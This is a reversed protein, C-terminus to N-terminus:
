MNIIMEFKNKLHEPIMEKCIHEFNYNLQTDTSEYAEFNIIPKVELTIGYKSLEQIKKIYKPQSIYEKNLYIELYDKQSINKLKNDDWLEENYIRYFKISSNNAYFELSKIDDDQMVYFGREQNSDIFTLPYCSGLTYLNNKISPTHIHGSFIISNKLLTKKALDMEDLSTHTYIFKPKFKLIENITDEDQFEYWPLFIHDEIRLWSKYLVLINEFRGILIDLICIDSKEELPSYYDHNGALVIMESKSNQQILTNSLDEFMKVVMWTICVNISSRSDFVDGLHVLRIPEDQSKIYPIIQNYIFSEQSKYWKMSGQKVGFHTDSIMITKM